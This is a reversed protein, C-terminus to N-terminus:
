EQNKKNLAILFSPTGLSFPVNKTKWVANIKHGVCFSLFWSLFESDFSVGDMEFAELYTMENITEVSVYAKILSPKFHEPVEKEIEWFCYNKLGIKCEPCERCIRKKNKKM